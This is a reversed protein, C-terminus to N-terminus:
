GARGPVTSYCGSGGAGAAGSGGLPGGHWLGDAPEEAERRQEDRGGQHQQGRGGGRGRAAPPGGQGGVVELLADPRQQRGAAEAAVALRAALRPEVEPAAGTHELAAVGAGGEDGARGLLAQQVALQGAAFHGRALGAFEGLAFQGEDPGP